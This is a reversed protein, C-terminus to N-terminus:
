LPFGFRALAAARWIAPTTMPTFQRAARLSERDATTSIRARQFRSICATQLTSSRGCNRGKRFPWVTAAKVRAATASMAASSRSM